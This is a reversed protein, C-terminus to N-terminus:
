GPYGCEHLAPLSLGLEFSHRINEYMKSVGKKVSDINYGVLTCMVCYVQGM